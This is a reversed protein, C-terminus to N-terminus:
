DANWAQASSYLYTCYKNGCVIGPGLIGPKTIRFFTMGSWTDRTEGLYNPLNKLAQVASPESANSRSGAMHINLSMAGAILVVALVHRRFLTM